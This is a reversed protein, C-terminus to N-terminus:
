LLLGSVTTLVVSGLYPLKCCGIVRSVRWHLVVLWVYNNGQDAPSSLKTVSCQRSIAKWRSWIEWVRCWCCVSVASCLIRRCCCFIFCYLTLMLSLVLSPFLPLPSLSNFGNNAVMKPSYPTHVIFLTGSKLMGVQMARELEEDGVNMVQGSNSRVQACFYVFITRM